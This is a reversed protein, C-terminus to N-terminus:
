NHISFSVQLIKTITQITIINIFSLVFPYLDLDSLFKKDM